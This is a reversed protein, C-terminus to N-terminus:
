FGFFQSVFFPRFYPVPCRVGYSSGSHLSRSIHSFNTRPSEVSPGSSGGSSPHFLVFFYILPPSSLIFLSRHSLSFFQSLFSQFFIILPFIVYSPFTYLQLHNFPFPFSLTPPIILQSYLLFYLSRFFRSHSLSCSFNIYQSLFDVLTSLSLILLFLRNVPPSPPPPFSLCITLYSPLLFSLLPYPIIGKHANM